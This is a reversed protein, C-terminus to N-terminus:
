CAQQVAPVVDAQTMEVVLQLSACEPVPSCSLSLSTLQSAWPGVALSPVLAPVSILVPQPRPLERSLIRPHM